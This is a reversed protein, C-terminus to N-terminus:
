GTYLNFKIAFQNKNLEDILAQQAKELKEYETQDYYFFNNNQKDGARVARIM